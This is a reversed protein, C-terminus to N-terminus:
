RGRIGDDLDEGCVGVRAVEGVGEGMDAGVRGELAQFEADADEADFVRGLFWEELFRVLFEGLAQVIVDAPGKCEALFPHFQQEFVVALLSERIAPLLLPRQYERARQAGHPRIRLKRCVTRAPRTDPHQCLTQCLLIAGLAYVHHMRDGVSRDLILVSLILPRSLLHTRLRHPLRIQPQTLLPRLQPRM